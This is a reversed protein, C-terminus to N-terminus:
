MKEKAEVYEDISCVNSGIVDAIGYVYNEKKFADENGDVNVGDCSSWHMAVDSDIDLASYKTEM